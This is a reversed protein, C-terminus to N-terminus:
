HNSYALSELAREIVATSECFFVLTDGETANSLITEIEDDINTEQLLESVHVSGNEFREEPLIEPILEYDIDTAIFSLFVHTGEFTCLLEIGINDSSEGNFYEVYRNFSSSLYNQM